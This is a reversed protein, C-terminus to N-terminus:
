FVFAMQLILNKLNKKKKYAGIEDQYKDLTQSHAQHNGEQILNFSNKIKNKVISMKDKEAKPNDEKIREVIFKGKIIKDKKFLHWDEESLFTNFSRLSNKSLDRYQINGLIEKMDQCEEILFDVSEKLEKIDQSQRILEQNQKLNQNNLNIINQNMEEIKAQMERNQEVINIM